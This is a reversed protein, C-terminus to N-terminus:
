IGDTSAEFKEGYISEYSATVRIRDRMAMAASLTGVGSLDLVRLNGGAAIWSTRRSERLYCASGWSIGLQACLVEIAPKLAIPPAFPQEDVFIKLEALKAPGIGYNMLQILIRESVCDLTFDLAPTVSLRDHTRAREEADMGLQLQRAMLKRQQRFVVLQAGFVFLQASLVGLTLQETLTM